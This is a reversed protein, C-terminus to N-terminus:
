EPRELQGAKVAFSPASMTKSLLHSDSHIWVALSTAKDKGHSKYSAVARM